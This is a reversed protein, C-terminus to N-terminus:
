FIATAAAKRQAAAGSSRRRAAACRHMTAASGRRQLAAGSCHRAAAGRKAAPAPLHFFFCRCFFCRCFGDERGTVTDKMMGKKRDIENRIIATLSSTHWDLVASGCSTYADQSKDLRYLWYHGTNYTDCFYKKQEQILQTLNNM